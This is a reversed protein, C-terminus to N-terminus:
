KVFPQAPPRLPKGVSAPPLPSGDTVPARGASTSAPPADAPSAPPAARPLAQHGSAPKPAADKPPTAKLVEVEESAPDLPLTASDDPPAVIVFAVVLAVAFAAVIGAITLTRTKRSLVWFREKCARCRYPSRWAHAGAERTRITSRRVNLSGCAPCHHVKLWARLAGAPPQPGNDATPSM